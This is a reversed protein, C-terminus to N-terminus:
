QAECGQVSESPVVAGDVASPQQAAVGWLGRPWLRAVPGQAAAADACSDCPEPARCCSDCLVHLFLRLGAGAEVPSCGFIVTALLLMYTINFFSVPLGVAGDQVM